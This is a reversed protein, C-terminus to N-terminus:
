EKEEEESFGLQEDFNTFEGSVDKKFEWWSFDEAADFGKGRMVEGSASAIEVYDSSFLKRQKKDWNLSRSRITNGDKDTIVVHGWIYFSEMKMPTLGSDSVVTTTVDGAENFIELNVPAVRIQKLKEDQVLHDTTLRWVRTTDDYAILITGRLEQGTGDTVIDIAKLEKNDDRECGRTQILYGLGVIVLFLSLRRFNNQLRYKQHATLKM